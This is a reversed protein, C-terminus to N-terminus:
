TRFQLQEKGQIRTQKLLLQFLAQMFRYKSYLFYSMNIIKNVMRQKTVNLVAGFDVLDLNQEIAYDTMEVFMLDYAHYTTDRRRDFAGHLANLNKGSKIAAQYGLFDGNIRAIFYIVNDLRTKSTNLASELYLDQYPLYFVSTESTAIFCDHLSNIDEKKLLNNVREVIGEKRRFSKIKHKINKHTGTYDKLDSMKSTDILAHPLSPLTFAGPFSAAHETYDYIVTLIFNEKMFGAIAKCIEDPKSPDRTFGPNSMMDMCCGFRIWLYFPIGALNILRSLFSNHFLARGYKRCKILIAAGCLDSGDYVRLMMPTTHKTGSRFLCSFVGWISEDLNKHHLFDKFIEQENKTLFTSNLEFTYM